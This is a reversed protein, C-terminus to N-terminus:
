SAVTAGMGDGRCQVKNSGIRALRRDTGCASWRARRPGGAVGENGKPTMRPEIFVAAPPLTRATSWGLTPIRPREGAPISQSWDACRMSALLNGMIHSRHLPRIVMSRYILASLGSSDQISSHRQRVQPFTTSGCIRILLSSWRANRSRPALIGDCRAQFRCITRSNRVAKVKPTMAQSCSPSTAGKIPTDCFGVLLPFLCYGGHGM